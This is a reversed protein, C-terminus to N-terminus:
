RSGDAAPAAAGFYKELVPRIEPDDWDEGGPGTVLLGGRLGARARARRPVAHRVHVQRPEDDDPRPLRHRPRRRPRTPGGDRHACAGDRRLHRAAHAQRPHSRGQDRREDRRDGGGRRRPRRAAAAQVVGRHIPPVRRVRARAAPWRPSAACFVREWPVFVDDFVTLTELMKHQSSLPLEWPQPRRRLVVLHVAVAGAHQGPRRLRGGLRRRRGEDGADAARHGRRRERRVVHPRQAACSSATPANTSSQVYIDPDAQEHPGKSRDGKVDTQAVRGRPGRRPLAPLLGTGNSSRSGQLVRQLAFLADTGVEKILTVM